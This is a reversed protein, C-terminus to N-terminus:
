DVETMVEASIPVPWPAGWPASCNGSCRRFVRTVRAMLHEGALGHNLLRGDRLAPEVDRMTTLVWAFRTGGCRRTRASSRM